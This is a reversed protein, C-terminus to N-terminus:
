EMSSISSVDEQTCREDFIRDFAYRIDKTKKGGIITKSYQAIPNEELPDFVLVREDLVQVIRRIGKSFLKPQPTATLSGDGLFMPSDKISTVHPIEKSSFPRVRVIDNICLTLDM